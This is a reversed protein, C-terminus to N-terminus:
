ANGRMAAMRKGALWGMLLANPDHPPSVPVPDSAALHLTGDSKLINYNSWGRSSATLVGGFQIADGAAVDSSFVFRWETEAGEILYGTVSGGGSIFRNAVGVTAPQNLLSLTYIPTTDTLSKQYFFIVAYPHANKDTWVRNIDPLEVGNYLYNM